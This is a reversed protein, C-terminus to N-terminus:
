FITFDYRTLTLFYNISSSKNSELDGLAKNLNILTQCINIGIKNGFKLADLLVPILNNINGTELFKSYVKTIRIFLLSVSKKIRDDDSMLLRIIYTFSQMILSSIKIKHTSDISAAFVLIARNREALDESTLNSKIYGIIKDM